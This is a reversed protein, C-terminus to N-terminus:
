RFTGVVQQIVIANNGNADQQLTLIVVAKDVPNGQNDFMIRGSVGQYSPVNGKGLTLLVKRIADGSVSGQTLSAAYTYLSVDDYVMLANYQPDPANNGVMNGQYTSRWDSFFAPQQKQAIKLFNWENFDAFTTFMLRRMDQPFNHAITADVSNGQGLLLGSDVADGGVVKLQGLPLDFPNARALEGAAHALRVADVNFGALFIASAPTASFVGASVIQEYQAVTTQNETFNQQTFSGGLSQVRSAVANALSVSYTDTPDVLILVKKAKLNDILLSGLVQGQSNDAPCVRFFYPSSGSLKVSSATPAILPLHVSALIDRADITQTSNYWGVVGIFHDLNSTKSVRNAIFQAVTAVNANNAGSNAIVIRLKLGHPLLGKSNTEHQALYVGELQERDSDLYFASNVIPLGVALTVYPTNDQLIHINENYIQAEGDTPDASV